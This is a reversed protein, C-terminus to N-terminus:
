LFIQNAVLSFLIWAEIREFIHNVFSLFDQFDYKIM